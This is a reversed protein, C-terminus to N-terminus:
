ERPRDTRDAITVRLDTVSDGRLVRIPVDKGVRDGTLLELLDEPEEVPQGDFAAILDGVLLGGRDAPSGPKVDVILLAQERQERGRQREGIHVPQGAVGLYGRRIRGHELLAAATKWAIPAPIIVGLGRIAAATAIGIVKGTMDAFAGGAFGEHMPATTRIVEDISRGRGTRLPGGIVSVVGVSATVANSWSRAVAVALNGVRAPETAPKAPTANLGSARLLALGTAPDWGHLEADLARGDDTRVRLGDERGIARANTLVVDDAFVVGSVSQVQVVSPAISAVVDAIQNSLTQLENM